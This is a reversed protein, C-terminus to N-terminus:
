FERGRDYAEWRGTERLMCRFRKGDLADRLMWSACVIAIVGCGSVTPTMVGTPWMLWFTWASAFMAVAHGAWRLQRNPVVAAASLLLGSGIMLWGWAHEIGMRALSATFWTDIPGFAYLGMCILVGAITLAHIHIRSQRRDTM